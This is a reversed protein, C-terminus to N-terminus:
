CCHVVELMPTQVVVEQALRLVRQGDGVIVLRRQLVVM